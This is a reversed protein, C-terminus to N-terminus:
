RSGPKEGLADELYLVRVMVAAAAALPTALLLGLMGALTGMLVQVVIILAPALSVARKEALPTLLYGDIMQLALYLAAVYAGERLGQSFGLLLAPIAAALPGINPIFNLLGAIVGLILALPVGIIWLGITTLCGNVAMLLIRALIWRRLVAGMEALVEAARERRAPPVLRLFGARYQRPGAALYVALLFVVVAGVIADGAAAAASAIRAAASGAIGKVDAGSEPLVKSLATGEIASRVKAV